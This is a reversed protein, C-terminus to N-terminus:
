AVSGTLLAAWEPELIAAIGLVVLGLGILRLTTEARPRLELMMVCTLGVMWVYSAMGVAMAFLMLPWCRRIRDVAHATGVAFWGAGPGVAPIRPAPTRGLLEAAGAFTAIGGVILWPREALWPTLHVVRHLIGDGLYAALGFIAWASFYGLLLMAPKLRGPIAGDDLVRLTPLSSPLMMAASMVLWGMLFLGLGIGFPVGHQDHGFVEASGTSWMVALTTWAVAVLALGLHVSSTDGATRAATTTSAFREDIAEM